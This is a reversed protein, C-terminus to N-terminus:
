NTDKQALATMAHARERLETAAALLKTTGDSPCRLELDREAFAELRVAIEILDRARM